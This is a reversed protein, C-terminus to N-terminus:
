GVLVLRRPLPGTTAEENKYYGEFGTTPQTEVIEGIAEDLNVRGATQASTWRRASRARTEADLVKCRRIARGSRGKPCRRIVASSSSGRPRATATGSAAASAGPSSRSTASRRRTASRWGCPTTPTTRTARTHRPHLQPGQGHLGADDCRLAPHRGAHESASFRGAHRHPRRRHPGVGMRHVALELPLVAAARLRTARPWSPSPRRCPRGHPRLPGPHVPRGQAPRDLRLHLDPPLPRGGDVAREASPADAAALSTRTVRRRRDVLVRSTRCRPTSATSCRGRSAPRDGAGPLRHAPDAPGAARRPLDLQYGRRGRGVPRRRRALVPLRPRQRAPRRHPAAARLHAPRRLARGPPEGEELIQRYTWSGDGILLGVGDDDARRRLVEATTTM